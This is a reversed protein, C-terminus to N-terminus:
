EPKQRSGMFAFLGGAAALAIGAIPQAPQFLSMIKFQLGILPLVLSGVGMVLMFVGLRAM